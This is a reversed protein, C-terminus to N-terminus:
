DDMLDVVVAKRTQPVVQSTSAVAQDLLSSAAAEQPTKVVVRLALM